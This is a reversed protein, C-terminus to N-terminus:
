SCCASYILHGYEYIVVYTKEPLDYKRNSRNHIYRCFDLYLTNRVMSYCGDIFSGTADSFTDSRCCM